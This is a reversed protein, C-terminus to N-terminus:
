YMIVSFQKRIHFELRLKTKLSTEFSKDAAVTMSCLMDTGADLMQLTLKKWEPTSM